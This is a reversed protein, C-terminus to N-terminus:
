SGSISPAPRGKSGARFTVLNLPWGGALRARRRRAPAGWVQPAPIRQSGSMLRSGFPSPVRPPTALTPIPSYKLGAVSPHLEIPLADSEPDSRKPNLDRCGLWYKFVLAPECSGEGGEGSLPPPYLSSSVVTLPASDDLPRPRSSRLSWVPTRNGTASGVNLGEPIAKETHFPATEPPRLQEQAQRVPRATRGTQGWRAGEFPGPMDGECTGTDSAPNHEHGANRPCRQCPTLLRHASLHEPLGSPKCASGRPDPQAVTPPQSRAGPNRQRSTSPWSLSRPKVFFLLGM